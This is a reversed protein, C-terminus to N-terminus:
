FSMRRPWNGQAVKRAAVHPDQERAFEAVSMASRVADLPMMQPTLKLLQEAFRSIWDARTAISSDHHHM